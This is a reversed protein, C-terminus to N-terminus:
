EKFSLDISDIVKLLLDIMEELKMFPKNSVQGELFPFHIFVCKTNLNNTYIYNLTEYYIDNCIFTGANYSISLRKNLAVKLANSLNINTKYAVNGGEIIEKNICLVGKNDPITAHKINLAFKELCVNNRGGAEGMLIVLDHPHAILFNKITKADEDYVVDLLLKSIKNDKYSDPLEKLIEETPNIIQKNFPKFGTILINM